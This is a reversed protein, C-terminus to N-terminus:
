SFGTDILGRLYKRQLALVTVPFCITLSHCAMVHGTNGERRTQCIGGEKDSMDRGGQRVYGERRTQCIGGEKDSLDRGGQRVSGERRTQCIGGEKDSLDRGGQRVSGERRTQCIGGEKDSLRVKGNAEAQLLLGQAQQVGDVLFGSPLPLQGGGPEM